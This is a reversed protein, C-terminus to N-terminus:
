AWFPTQNLIAVSYPSAVASVVAQGKLAVIKAGRNVVADLLAIYDKRTIDELIPEEGLQTPLDVHGGILSLSRYTM